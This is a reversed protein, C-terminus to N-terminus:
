ARPSAHRSSCLALRIWCSPLFRRRCGSSICEPTLSPRKFEWKGRSLRPRKLTRPHLGVQAAAIAVPVHEHDGVVAAAGHGITLPSACAARAPPVAVAGSGYRRVAVPLLEADPQHCPAATALTAFSVPPDQSLASLTSRRLFPIAQVMTISNRSCHNSQQDGDDADTAPTRCRRTALVTAGFALPHPLRAAGEGGHHGGGSGPCPHDCAGSVISDSPSTAFMAPHHPDLRACGQQYYDDQCLLADSNRFATRHIPPAQRSTVIEPYGVIRPRAGRHASPPASTRATRRSHTMM